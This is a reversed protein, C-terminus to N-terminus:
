DWLDEFHAAFLALGHRIRRRYAKEAAIVAPTVAEDHYEPHLFTMTHYTKGDREIEKTVYDYYDPHDQSAQYIANGEPSDPYERKIQDFAWIMEDLAKLWDEFSDVGDPFGHLNSKRFQCLAGHIYPALYAYTNWIQIRKKFPYRGVKCVQRQRTNM